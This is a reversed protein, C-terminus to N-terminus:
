DSEDTSARYPRLRLTHQTPGPLLPSPRGHLWDEHGARYWPSLFNGSQGGPMHLIGKDEHGPAVVLRQSAGLIRTQVRITSWTGASPNEPMNLRSALQNKLAAPLQISSMAEMIPHEVKTTQYVGWPADIPM